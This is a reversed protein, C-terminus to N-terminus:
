DPKTINGARDVRGWGSIDFPTVGAKENVQVVAFGGRFPWAVDFQPEIVMRGIRDVYGQKGDFPDGVTVAALGESFFSAGAFQPQIVFQGTTDIYGWRGTDVDGVRVAALGESFPTADNFQPPIAFEEGAGKVFGYLDGKRRPRLLEEAGGAAAMERRLKDAYFVRKFGVDLVCVLEGSAQGQTDYFGYDGIVHLGGQTAGVDVRCEGGDKTKAVGLWAAYFFPRKNLYKVDKLIRQTRLAGVEFHAVEDASQSGFDDSNMVAYIVLTEVDSAAVSPQSKGSCGTVFAASLLATVLWLRAVLHASIAPTGSFGSLAFAL